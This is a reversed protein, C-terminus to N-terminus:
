GRYLNHRSDHTYIDRDIVYTGQWKDFLRMLNHNLFLRNAPNKKLTASEEHFINTGGCYIIKRKQNYNVALCLDVDDFAWHFQEDMGSIGSKNTTCVNRYCGARTILVAGTVVQFLRNREADADTPEGARFHMPTKYRPDFIVGAHQLLNSGTYLLRAGVVGVTTDKNIISLMNTISTTDNFIVDNNLMMILDNDPPSVRQFLYNMGEAFNQRNDKYPIIKINGEWSKVVDITDDKSGNDKIWWTYDVNDLAPMLSPYLKQLKDSGNWSLTLIHLM